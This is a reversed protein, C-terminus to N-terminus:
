IKDFGWTNWKSNMTEIMKPTVTKQYMIELQTLRQFDCSVGNLTIDEISSNKLAAVLEPSHFTEDFNCFTISQLKCFPSEMYQVLANNIDVDTFDIWIHTLCSESIASIIEVKHLCTLSDNLHINAHILTFQTHDRLTSLCEM